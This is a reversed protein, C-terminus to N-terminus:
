GDNKVELFTLNTLICLVCSMGVVSLFELWDVQSFITSAGIYAIGSQAMTKICRIALDKIYNKM